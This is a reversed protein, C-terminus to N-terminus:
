STARGAHCGSDKPSALKSPLHKMRATMSQNLTMQLTNGRRLNYGPTPNFSALQNHRGLLPTSAMFLSPGGGAPPQPAAIRTVHM